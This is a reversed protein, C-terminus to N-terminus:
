HDLKAVAHRLTETALHAYRMTMKLSAHGLLESVTLLPVGRQVLRSAFTHRLDHMRVDHLAAATVAIV